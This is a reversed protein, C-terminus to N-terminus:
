GRLVTINSSAIFDGAFRHIINRSENKMHGQQMFWIQISPLVGFTGSCFEIKEIVKSGLNNMLAAETTRFDRLVFGSWGLFALWFREGGRAAGGSYV